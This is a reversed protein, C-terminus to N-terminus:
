VRLTMNGRLSSVMFFEMEHNGSKTQSSGLSRNMFSEYHQPWRRLVSRRDQQAGVGGLMVMKGSGGCSKLVEEAM